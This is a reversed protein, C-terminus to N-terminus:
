PIVTPIFLLTMKYFIVQTPHPYFALHATHPKRNVPDHTPPKKFRVGYIKFRIGNSM